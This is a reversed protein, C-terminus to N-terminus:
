ALRMPLMAISTFSPSHQLQSVWCCAEASHLLSCMPAPASPAEPASCTNGVVWWSAISADPATHPLHMSILRSLLMLPQTFPHLLFPCPWANAAPM